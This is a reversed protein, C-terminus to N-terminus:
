NQGAATTATGATQETAVFDEFPLPPTGTLIPLVQEPLTRMTAFSRHADPLLAGEAMISSSGADWVYYAGEAEMPVFHAQPSWARLVTVLLLVILTAGLM